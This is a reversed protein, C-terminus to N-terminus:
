LTVNIGAMFTRAQPYNGKDIGINIGVNSIEPDFGRYGSVTLLNEAAIFFRLNSLYIKNMVNQPLTYGLQINKLRLYDGKQINLDSPRWNLNPDGIVMRPISNSTGEGHWRDWIYAPQNVIPLDVRRVADFIQNGAVGQLMINLDIGKCEANINLGYTWDPLGKGIKTRDNNDIVGNKDYDVFRIDGASANPQMKEGKTNTYSNVEAQTQFIGNTLHGYFYPFPMGNQARIYTGGPVGHLMDYNEYGTDNGLNILKNQIYTTNASFSIKCDSVNFKISADMEVGENKMDGVNGIPAVEGIYAPLPVSMLMGITQKNFYDISFTINNKLFYVDIGFDTQQSEEWKLSPNSIGNPKTGFVIAESTGNGFVYNNNGAITTVYRFQGINQNGNKGWSARLKMFSLWSPFDSAFKEKTVVWGASLSPFIAWKNNTGFNSSGDRRVIGEVLYKEDFNYSVRAFYSALTSNNTGGDTRQVTVDGTAFNINAKDPDEEQLGYNQGWLFRSSYKQASQGLLFSFNNKGFATSYTLTNELQWSLGRNMMSNVSSIDAYRTRGLYYVPSWSDAGWFSLDIGYSSKFILGKAMQIDAWITSVIKDTNNKTGPLNLDAVPNIIEGFSDGAISYLQGNKSKVAHPHLALIESPNTAFVPLLPSSMIASGLPSGFESNTLVGTSTIRTYAANVGFRMKNLLKRHNTEDILTYVGNIRFSYRNYNSRDFNGGVIGEQKFNGFSLFYSNDLTGGTVSVQQNQVPANYNFIEKQWDTGQSSASPTPYVPAYGDNIYAENIITQYQYSNLVDLKKWPSQVGFSADYSVTVQKGSKSNGNKTTILIVGNAARAGYIAASAADKLIEVSQIDSPNLYDIGNRVAMGDIIYLPESDNITGIGRIRVRAGDGPQGSVQTISVGSVKGKLVNDVRSPSTSKLDDSNVRSIAATVISKKQIGYGVVILEFLTKSDENLRIEFYSKGNIQLQQTEYGIYSIVITSSNDVNELQFKGYMNTITGSRGDKTFVSAGMIPEGYEDYVFGKINLVTTPSEKDTKKIIIINKDKIEYDVNQNILIQKVVEDISKKYISLTIINKTNLDKSEYVFSYGTKTKLSEIAQKVTVNRMKLTINQSLVPPTFIYIMLAM